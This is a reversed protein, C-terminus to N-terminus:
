PEELSATHRAAALGYQAFVSRNWSRAPHRAAGVLGYTCYVAAGAALTHRAAALAYQAFVSRNRCRAAHQAAALGYQAFVSGNDDVCIDFPQGKDNIGAALPTGRPLWAMSHL